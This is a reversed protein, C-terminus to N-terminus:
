PNKKFRVVVMNKNCDSSTNIYLNDSLPLGAQDLLQLYLTKTTTQPITGLKFDFGSPGYPIQAANSVNIMKIPQGNLTGYLGIVMGIIPSNNADVVTGAVGFWSCGLDPFYTTSAINKYSSSFPAKPTSTPQPTKTPPVLLVPTISPELTILPALTATPTTIAITATWTAEPQIPTITATPFLFPTPPPPFPNLPSTPNVFILAFYGGICLTIILVLISLMDWLSFQSGSRKVPQEDKFEFNDM